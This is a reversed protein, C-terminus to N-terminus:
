IGLWGIAMDRDDKRGCRGIFEFFLICFVGSRVDNEAFREFGGREESGHLREEIAALGGAVSGSGFGGEVPAGDTGSDRESEVYRERGDDFFQRFADEEGEGM